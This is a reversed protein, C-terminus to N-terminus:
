TGQPIGDSYAGNLAFEGVGSWTMRYVRDRGYGLRRWLYQGNTQNNITQNVPTGFTQGADDSWDLAITDPSMASGSVQAAFRAYSIRQGDQQQHAWSRQRVIPVGNDTYADEGLLYLQPGNRAGVLVQNVDPTYPYQLPGWGAMCYPLWPTTLGGFTREHWLQTAADYAWWAQGSPFFIGITEHGGIQYAMAVADAITPYKRWADEVAFTSVRKAAYGEGRMMMNRGWRDQSLWYVANDAIVVSYTAVCGQQLVSNPMRAFPFATGGANFWIETTAQGFLWINDHLAALTVLRDNWGEKAAFYTPDFPTVVNSTTTYFNNTNPQNFILFTDIFDVRNAGYFAPDDILQLSGPTSTADIPVMYGNVSGDVIVITTGNDSMSVPVGTNSVLYGLLTDPQGGGWSVVETGFVLIVAGSSAFYIGRIHDSYIGAYDNALSLGPAPYHTVPFPADPPNPEAYLNICVQANAIPSRALYSGPHLPLKM